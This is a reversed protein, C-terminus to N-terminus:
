YNWVYSCRLHLSVWEVNMEPYLMSLQLTVPFQCPGGGLDQTREQDGSIKPCIWTPSIESFSVQTQMKLTTTFPLCQSSLKYGWHVICQTLCENFMEQASAVLILAFRRWTTPSFGGFIDNSSAFKSVYVSLFSAFICFLLRFRSGPKSDIEKAVIKDDITCM